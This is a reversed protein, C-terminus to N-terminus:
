NPDTPSEFGALDPSDLVDINFILLDVSPFPPNAIVEDIGTHLSIQHSRDLERILKVFQSAIKQDPDVVLCNM